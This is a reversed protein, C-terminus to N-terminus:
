AHRVVSCYSVASGSVWCTIGVSRCAWLLGYYSHLKSIVAPCPLVLGCSLLCTEGRRSISWHLDQHTPQSIGSSNSFEPNYEYLGRRAIHGYITVITVSCRMTYAEPEAPSHKNGTSSDSYVSAGYHTIYSFHKPYEIGPVSARLCLEKVSLM